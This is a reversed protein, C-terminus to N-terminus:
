NSVRIKGCSIMPVNHFCSQDFIIRQRPPAQKIMNAHAECLNELGPCKPCALLHTRREECDEWQCAESFDNELHKLTDKSPVAIESTVELTEQNM